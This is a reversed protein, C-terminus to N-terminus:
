YIAFFLRFNFFNSQIHLINVKVNSLYNVEENIVGDGDLFVAENM